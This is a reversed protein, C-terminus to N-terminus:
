RWRTPRACANSPSGGIRRRSSGVMPRSGACTTSIRSSSAPRRPSRVTKKELWTRASTAASHSRTMTMARPRSTASPPGPSSARRRPPRRRMTSLTSPGGASTAPASPATGPTSVTSGAASPKTTSPALSASSARATPSATLCRPQVTSSSRWSVGPRSSTKRPRTRSPGCEAHRDDGDSALLEREVEAREEEVREGGDEEDQGPITEVGVEAEEDQHAARVHRAAEPLILQEVNLPQEEDEHRQEGHPEEGLLPLEARELEEPRVRHAVHLDHHPLEEGAHGHDHEEDRGGGDM